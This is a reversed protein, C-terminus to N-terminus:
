NAKEGAQEQAEKQAQAQRLINNRYLQVWDITELNLPPFGGDRVVDHIIRRAFPFVMRPCEILLFPHMQDQPVGEIEFVGTYHLEMLFLTDDGGRQKATVVYKSTVEYMNEQQRKKADLSVQVNIEPEPSTSIGKQALINEYFMDKIFQAAIRMKVPNAQQEGAAPAAGNTEEAM